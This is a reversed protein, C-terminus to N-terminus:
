SNGSGGSGGSKPSQEVGFIYGAITGLLAALTEGSIIGGGGLVLLMPLIMVIGMAKLANPGLGQSEIQHQLLPFARWVIFAALGVILINW